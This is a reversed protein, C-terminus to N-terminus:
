VCTPCKATEDEKELKRGSLRELQFFLDPNGKVDVTKRKIKQKPM